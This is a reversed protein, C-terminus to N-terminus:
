PELLGATYINVQQQEDLPRARAVHALFRETYDDITGTKRLSTLKGHPPAFRKNVCRTFYAWDTATKDQMLHMYWQQAGGTLHYSAYWVQEMEPTKQGRFFQECRNIWPLPDEKDDYMPFNLKHLRPMLILFSGSLIGQYPFPQPLNIKPAEM